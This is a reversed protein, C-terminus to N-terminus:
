DWAQSNKYAMPMVLFYFTQPSYLVSPLVSLLESCSSSLYLLLLVPSLLHPFPIRTGGSSVLYCFIKFAMCLPQAKTPHDEKLCVAASLISCEM